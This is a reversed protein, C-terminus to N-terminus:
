RFNVLYKVFLYQCIFNVNSNKTSETLITIFGHIHKKLLFSCKFSNKETSYFGRHSAPLKREKKKAV